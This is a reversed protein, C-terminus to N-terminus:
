CKQFNTSIPQQPLQKRPMTGFFSSSERNVTDFLIAAPLHRIRRERDTVAHLTLPRDICGNGLQQRRNLMREFEVLQGWFNINPSVCPRKQKVFRYAEHLSMKKQQMLYAVVFTPSRSYGALCHVLVSANKKIAKNLFSFAKPFYPILKETHSDSVPIRLFRKEEIHKPKVCTVTCNLMYAIKYKKATEVSLADRESGLYLYPLVCTVESPFGDCWDDSRENQQVSVSNSRGDLLNNVCLAPYAKSFEQFGVSFLVVIVNQDTISNTSHADPKQTGYLVVQFQKPITGQAKSVANIIFEVVSEKEQLRKRLLRSYGLNIAGKIHGSNYEQFRRCDILVPKRGNTPQEVINALQEGTILRGSATSAGSNMQRTPGM